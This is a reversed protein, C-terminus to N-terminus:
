GFIVGDSKPSIKLEDVIRRNEKILEVMETIMKKHEKTSLKKPPILSDGESGVYPKLDKFKNTM